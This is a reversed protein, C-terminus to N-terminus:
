TVVSKTVKPVRITFQFLVVDGSGAEGTPEPCNKVVGADSTFRFDGVSGGKPAWRVYLDGANEYQTRVAQWPDSGGETYVTRVNLEIPERKGAAIIATDGDFTYADGSQRDGGSREVAAGFGSIDTWDTGNTSIEVKCDRLSMGDTTQAM